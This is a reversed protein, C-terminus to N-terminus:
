AKFDIRSVMNANFAEKNEASFFNKHLKATGVTFQVSQFNGLALISDRICGFSKRFVEKLEEDVGFYVFLNKKNTTLAIEIQGLSPPNVLVRLGFSDKQGKDFPVFAEGELCDPVEQGDWYVPWQFYISGDEEPAPLVSFLEQMRLNDIVDEALKKNEENQTSNDASKVLHKLKELVQGINWSNKLQLSLDSSLNALLTSFNLTKNAYQRVLDANGADIKRSLLLGLLDGNSLKGSLNKMIEPILRLTEPTISVGYNKLASLTESDINPAESAPTQNNLTLTDNISQPSTESALLPKGEVSQITERSVSANIRSSSDLSNSILSDM